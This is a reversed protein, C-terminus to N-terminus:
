RLRRPLVRKGDRTVRRYPNPDVVIDGAPPILDGQVAGRGRLNHWLM